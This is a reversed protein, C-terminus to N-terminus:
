ETENRICGIEDGFSQVASSRSTPSPTGCRNEKIERVGFMQAM